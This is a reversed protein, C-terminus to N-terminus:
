TRRIVSDLEIAKAHIIKSFEIIQSNSASIEMAMEALRDITKQTHSMSNKQENTSTVIEKSMTDIVDAERIVMELARSQKMMIERVANVGRGIADVMKLILDTSEKTGTVIRAGAEIDTIIKSIQKGIERSNDSTAQALKGIEDAVVAFGRGYEGARAAEIAANLSLLNIRDSIEDIMAIFRSIEAGGTNIINMTDTMHRLSEGTSTASGQISRISDEVKQSERVLGKQAENLENVMQKSKEGENKQTITSRYITEVAASLEEFTASMEESTSAQEMSLEAFRGTIDNLQTSVKTFEETLGTASGVIGELYVARERATKENEKQERLLVGMRKQMVNIKDSLALSLLIVTMSTGLQMSWRTFFNGPLFGTMSAVTIPGTIILPTFAIIGILAARSPPKLRFLMIYVFLLCMIIFLGIYSFVAMLAADVPGVLAFGAVLVAPIKVVYTLLKDLWPFHKKIEVYSSLFFVLFFLFVPVLFPLSHSSWWTADPWLYQMAFGKFSFDFLTFAAIFLVYYVYSIDRVSMFIFLNYIMMVCMLGYYFWYVPIENSLHEEYGDRSLINCNFNISDLSEMCVYYTVPGPGQVVRFIFNRNRIDRNSFPRWDGQKKVIFGGAGDPIYLDINDIPPFDYELLWEYEGDFRSDVTFRFWYRYHTYGFNISDTESATWNLPKESVDEIALKKEKDIIYELHRGINKIVLSEDIAVPQAAFVKASHLSIVLYLFINLGIFHISKGSVSKM